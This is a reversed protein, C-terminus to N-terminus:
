YQSSYYLTLKNKTHLGYKVCLNLAQVAIYCLPIIEAFLSDIHQTNAHKVDLKTYSAPEAAMFLRRQAHHGQPTEVCTFYIRGRFDTQFPIYLPGTYKNYITYLAILPFNNHNNIKTNKYEADLEHQTHTDVQSNTSTELNFNYCHTKTLNFKIKTHIHKYMIKIFNHDLTYAKSLMSTATTNNHHEMFHAGSNKNTKNQNQIESFHLKYIYAKKNITIKNYPTTRCGLLSNANNKQTLPLLALFRTTKYLSQKPHLRKNNGQISMETHTHKVTKFSIMSNVGNSLYVRQNHQDIPEDNEDNTLLNRKQAHPKNKNLRSMYVEQPILRLVIREVIRKYELYSPLELLLESQPPTDLNKNQKLKCYWLLQM